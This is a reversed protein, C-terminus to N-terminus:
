IQLCRIELHNGDPDKFHLNEKEWSLPRRFTANHESFEEMLQPFQQRKTGFAIHAYGDESVRTISDDFEIDTSEFLHTKTFGTELM